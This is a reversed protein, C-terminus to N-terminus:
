YAKKSGYCSSILTSLCFLSYLISFLEGKINLVKSVMSNVKCIVQEMMDGDYGQGRLRSLRLGYKAFLSELASKLSLANTNSVHVLGLFREVVQEKENVYCLTVVMQEKVSIDRSEDILISFLNDGLDELIVKTTECADARVIDKQITPATLKLNKRANKLVKHITENHNGLFDLFELFNGKNCSSMSEDNGRFALGQCLLSQICDVIAILHIRYEEKVQRSQKCIAVNIHQKQKM